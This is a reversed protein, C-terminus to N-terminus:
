WVVKRSTMWATNIITHPTRMSTHTESLFQPLFFFYKIYECEAEVCVCVCVCACVCVCVCVCVCLCARVCVDACVCVCVCVRVSKKIKAALRLGRSTFLGHRFWSCHLVRLTYVIHCGELAVGRAV